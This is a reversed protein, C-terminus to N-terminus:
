YQSHLEREVRLQGQFCLVPFWYEHFVRFSGPSSYMFDSNAPSYSTVSISTSNHFGVFIIVFFYFLFFLLLLYLFLDNFIM